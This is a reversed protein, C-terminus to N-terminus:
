VTRNAPSSVIHIIDAKPVSAHVDEGSTIEAASGEKDQPLKFNLGSVGGIGAIALWQLFDRRELMKKFTNEKLFVTFTEGLINNSGKIGM